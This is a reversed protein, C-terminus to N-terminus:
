NKNTNEKENQKKINIKRKQKKKILMPKWAWHASPICIGSVAMKMEGNGFRFYYDMILSGNGCKVSHNARGNAKLFFFGDCLSGM